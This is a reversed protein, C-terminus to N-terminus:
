AQGVAANPLGHHFEWYGGTQGGEKFEIYGLDDPKVVIHEGILLFAENSEDVCVLVKPGVDVVKVPRRTGHSWTRHKV